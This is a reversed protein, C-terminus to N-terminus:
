RAPEEPDEARGNARDVLRALREACGDDIMEKLRDVTHFVELMMTGHYAVDGLADALADCDLTGYTPMEHDDGTGSNDCLHVYCLQGATARAAAAADGTMHAHGTDLCLGTNPVGLEGLERALEAVDNGICHYDPLNEFAYVVGIQRGYEGLEAISKRLQGWRLQKEADSVGEPRITSCHTVVLSGGLELVLDGERRYADVARRRHDEACASPDYEEGFVGHLSDCPMQGAALAEQMQRVSVAADQNRYAQMVTCGLQRFCALWEAPPFDAFGIPAVTGLQIAM